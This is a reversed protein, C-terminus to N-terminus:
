TQHAVRIVENGFTVNSCTHAFGLGRKLVPYVRGSSAAFSAAIVASAGYRDQIERRLDDLESTDAIAARAFRFGLGVEGANDAMGQLCLILQDAPVQAEIAMDFVLQVCPGCDGELTSALMAGAWVDRAEKPGSYGSYAQLASLRLGASTSINTVHEMHGADYNYRAAFRRISRKLFFGIM